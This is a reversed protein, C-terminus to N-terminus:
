CFYLRRISQAENKSTLSPERRQSYEQSSAESYPFLTWKPWRGRVQWACRHGVEKWPRDFCAVADPFVGGIRPDRVSDVMNWHISFSEMPKCPNCPSCSFWPFWPHWPYQPINDVFRLSRCNGISAQPYGMSAQPYGMSAWPNGHLATSAWPSSHISM